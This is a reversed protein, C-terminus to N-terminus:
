RARYGRIFHLAITAPIVVLPLLLFFQNLSAMKGMAVEVTGMELYVFIWVMELKLWALLSRIIRYQAPANAQTIEWPINCLHPFRSVLSLLLYLGMGILPLTLLTTKIGWGDPNGTAGFHTPIRGPLAEWKLYLYIGAFALSSISLLELFKESPTSEPYIKPRACPM